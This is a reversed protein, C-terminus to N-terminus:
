DLFRRNSVVRANPWVRPKPGPCIDSRLGVHAIKDFDLFARQTLSGLGIVQGIDAIRLHTRTDVNASSGNSAVVIAHVLVLSNDLVISENTGIGLQYGWDFHPAPRCQPRASSQGLVRGCALQGNRAWLLLCNFTPYTWDLFRLRPLLVCM